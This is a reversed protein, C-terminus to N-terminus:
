ANDGIYAHLKGSYDLSAILGRPVNWYCLRAPIAAVCTVDVTGAATFGTMNGLTLMMKQVVNGNTDTLLIPCQFDCEESEIVANTDTTFALIIRGITRLNKTVGASISPLSTYTVGSVAKAAQSVANTHSSFVTIPNSEVQDSFKVEILGKAEASAM